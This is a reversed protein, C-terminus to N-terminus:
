AYRVADHLPSSNLRSQKLRRIKCTLFAPAMISSLPGDKSNQGTNKGYFWAKSSSDSVASVLSCCLYHGFDGLLNSKNFSRTSCFSLQPALLGVLSVFHFLLSFTCLFGSSPRTCSCGVVVRPVRRWYRPSSCTFLASSIPLSVQFFLFFSLDTFPPILSSICCWFYFLCHTTLTSTLWTVRPQM